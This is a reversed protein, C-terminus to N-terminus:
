YTNGIPKRSQTLVPPPYHQAISIISQTYQSVWDTGHYWYTSKLYRYYILCLPAYDREWVGESLPRPVFSLPTSSQPM